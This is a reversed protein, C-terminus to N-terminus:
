ILEPCGHGKVLNWIAGLSLIKIDEPDLFPVWIYQEKRGLTGALSYWGLEGTPGRTLSIGMDLAKRLMDELTGLLPVRGVPGGCHGEEYLFAGNRSCGEM